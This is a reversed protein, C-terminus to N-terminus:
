VYLVGIGQSPTESKFEIVNCPESKKVENWYKVVGPCVPEDIDHFACIRAYHGVNEFDGKVAEYSHDGDIFVLDFAPNGALLFIDSSFRGYHQLIYIEADRHIFIDENAGITPDICKLECEDNLSHLLAQMFLFTGGRFVGIELYSNIPKIQAQEYVFAMFKGFQDPTQYIGLERRDKNMYKRDKGYLNPTLYDYILGFERVADAYKQWDGQAAIVAQQMKEIKNM